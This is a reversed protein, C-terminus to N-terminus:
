DIAVAESFSPEDHFNESDASQRIRCIVLAAAPIGGGFFQANALPKIRGRCQEDISFDDCRRCLLSEGTFLLCSRKGGSCDVITQRFAPQADVLDIFDHVGEIVRRVFLYPPSISRRRLEVVAHEGRGGNEPVDVTMERLERCLARTLYRVMKSM